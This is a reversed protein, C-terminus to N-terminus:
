EMDIPISGYVLKLDYCIGDNGDNIEFKLRKESACSYICLYLCYINTNHIQSMEAHTQYVLCYKMIAVDFGLSVTM